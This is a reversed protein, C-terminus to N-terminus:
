ILVLTILPFALVVLLAPFFVKTALPADNCLDKDMCYCGNMKVGDTEIERCQGAYQSGKPVCKRYNVEGEEVTITLINNSFSASINSFFKTDYLKKIIENIDDSSYDKNLEIEGYVKLTETSIRSNGKVEFKKLVEAQGQTLIIFYFFIIYLFNKM